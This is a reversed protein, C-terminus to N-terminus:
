GSLGGALTPFDLPRFGYHRLWRLDGEFLDRVVAFIIVSCGGAGVGQVLRLAFLLAASDALACGLGGATFLACSALLVPRRGIRDSVPGLM